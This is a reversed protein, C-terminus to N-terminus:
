SYTLARLATLTSPKTGTQGAATSLTQTSTARTAQWNGDVGYVVYLASTGDYYVEGTEWTGGAADLADGLPGGLLADWNDAIADVIDTSVFETAAPFIERPEVIIRQRRRESM